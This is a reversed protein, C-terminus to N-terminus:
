QWTSRCHNTQVEGKELYPDNDLPYVAHRPPNVYFNQQSQGNCFGEYQDGYLWNNLRRKFPECVFYLIILIIVLVLLGYGVYQAKSYHHGEQFPLYSTPTEISIQEISGESSSM